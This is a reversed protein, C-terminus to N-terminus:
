YRKFTITIADGDKAWTAWQYFASWRDDEVTDSKWFPEFEPALDEPILWGMMDEGELTPSKFDNGDGADAFFVMGQKRAAYQVLAFFTNFKETEQTRLGKM